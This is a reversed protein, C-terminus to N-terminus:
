ILNLLVCIGQLSEFEFVRRLPDDFEPGGYAVIITFVFTEVGDRTKKKQVETMIEPHEFDDDTM